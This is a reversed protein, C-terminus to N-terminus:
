KIRITESTELHAVEIFKGDVQVVFKDGNMMNKIATKNPTRTITCLEDPLWQEEGDNIVMRAPTKTLTVTYTGYEATPLEKQRMHEVMLKKLFDRRVTLNKAKKTLRKAEALLHEARAECDSMYTLITVAKDEIQSELVTRASELIQCTEEDQAESLVSDLQRLNYDLEYLTIGM